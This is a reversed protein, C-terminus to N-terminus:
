AKMRDSDFSSTGGIVVGEFITDREVLSVGLSEMSERLLEDCRTKPLTALIFKGGDWVQLTDRYACDHLYAAPWYSGFPPILPWLESPTSAGDSAAGVPMSYLSGDTAQYIAPELLIFNRGDKSSVKLPLNKFGSNM